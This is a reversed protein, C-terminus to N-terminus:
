VLLQKKRGEKGNREYLKVDKREKEGKDPDTQRREKKRTWILPSRILFCCLQNRDLEEYV